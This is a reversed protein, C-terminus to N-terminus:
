KAAFPKSVAVLEQDALSYLVLVGIQKTAPEPLTLPTPTSQEFSGLLFSDDPLSNLLKFEGPVWYVLLDPRVIEDLAVLAVALERSGPNISLLRTQIAKKEWLDNRSWIESQKHIESHIGPAGPKSAPVETRSAIGVAFGAPLTIALAFVMVRHRRRLPRIM